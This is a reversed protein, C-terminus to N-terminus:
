RRTSTKLVTVRIWRHFRDRPIINRVSERPGDGSLFKSMYITQRVNEYQRIERGLGAFSAAFPRNLGSQDPRPKGFPRERDGPMQIDCQMICLAILQHPQSALSRLLPVAQNAVPALGVQGPSSRDFRTCGGAKRPRTCVLQGLLCHSLRRSPLAPHM